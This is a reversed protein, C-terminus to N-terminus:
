KKTLLDVKDELDYIKRLLEKVLRQAEKQHWFMERQYYLQESKRQEEKINYEESM